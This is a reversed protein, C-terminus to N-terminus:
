KHPYVCRHLYHRHGGGAAAAGSLALCKVFAASGITYSFCM